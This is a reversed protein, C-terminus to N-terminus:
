LKWRKQKKEEWLQMKTCSYKMIHNISHIFCVFEKHKTLLVKFFGKDDM